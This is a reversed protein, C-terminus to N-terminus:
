ARFVRRNDKPRVVTLTASFTPSGATAHFAVDVTRPEGGGTAQHRAGAQIPVAPPRQQRRTLWNGVVNSSTNSVWGVIGLAAAVLWDRRKWPRPPQPAPRDESPRNASPPCSRRRSKSPPNRMHLCVM